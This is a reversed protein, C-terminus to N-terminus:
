IAGREARAHAGTAVIRNERAAEEKEEEEAATAAPRGSAFLALTAAKVGIGGTDDDDDGVSAWLFRRARRGARADALSSSGRVFLPAEVAVVDAVVTTTSSRGAGFCCSAPFAVDCALEDDGFAEEEEVFFDLLPKKPSPSRSPGM